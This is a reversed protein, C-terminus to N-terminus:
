SQLFQVNKTESFHVPVVQLDPVCTTSYYQKRRGMIYEQYISYNLFSNHVDTDKINAIQIIDRNRYIYTHIAQEDMLLEQKIAM